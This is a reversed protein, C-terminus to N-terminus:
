ASQHAPSRFSLNAKPCLRAALGAMHRASQGPAFLTSPCFARFRNPAFRCFHIDVVIHGGSLKLQMAKLHHLRQAHHASDNTREREIKPVMPALKCVNTPPLIVKSVLRQSLVRWSASSRISCCAPCSALATTPTLYSAVSIM